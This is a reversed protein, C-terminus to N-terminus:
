AKANGGVLSANCCPVPDPHFLRPRRHGRPYASGRRAPDCRREDGSRRAYGARAAVTPNVQFITAPGSITNKIGDLVDVVGPIKGIADAVRPGWEHLLVEDSSFLKIEVPEPASTLDGIMDQLLQVFEVELM